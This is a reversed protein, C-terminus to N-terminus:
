LAYPFPTYTPVIKSVDYVEDSKVVQDTIVSELTSEDDHVDTANLLPVNTTMFYEGNVGAV